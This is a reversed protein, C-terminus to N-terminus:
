SRSGKTQVDPNYIITRSRLPTNMFFSRERIQGTRAAPAPIRESPMAIMAQGRFVRMSKPQEPRGRPWRRSRRGRCSRVGHSLAAPRLLKLGLLFVSPWGRILGHHRRGGRTGQPYLRLNVGGRRPSAGLGVAEWFGVKTKRIDSIRVDDTAARMLAEVARRGYGMGRLSKDIELRVLELIECPESEDDPQSVILEM